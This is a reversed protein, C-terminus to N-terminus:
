PTEDVYIDAIANYSRGTRNVTLVLRGTFEVGSLKPILTSVNGATPLKALELLQAILHQNETALNGADSNPGDVWIPQIAVRGCSEMEVIDLVVMINQNKEVVRAAEIKLNYDGPELINAIKSAAAAFDIEVNSAATNSKQRVFKRM